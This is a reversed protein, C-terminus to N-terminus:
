ADGATATAIADEILSVINSNGRELEDRAAQLAMLMVPAAAILRANAEDCPYRVVTDADPANVTQLKPEYDIRAVIFGNDRAVISLSAGEDWAYPVVRWPGPTHTAEEPEVAHFEEWEIQQEDTM